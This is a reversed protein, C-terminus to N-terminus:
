IIVPFINITVPITDTVYNSSEEIVVFRTVLIVMSNCFLGKHPTFIFVIYKISTNYM